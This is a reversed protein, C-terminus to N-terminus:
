CSGGKEGHAIGCSISNGVKKKKKKKKSTPYNQYMAVAMSNIITYSSM